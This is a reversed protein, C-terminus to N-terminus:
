RGKKGDFNIPEWASKKQSIDQKIAEIDELSFFHWIMIWPRCRRQFDALQSLLKDYKDYIHLQVDVVPKIMPAVAPKFFSLGNCKLCSAVSDSAFRSCLRTKKCCACLRRKGHQVYRNTSIHAQM